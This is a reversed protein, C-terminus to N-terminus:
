TSLVASFTRPSKNVERSFAGSSPALLFHAMVMEWDREGSSVWSKEVIGERILFDHADRVHSQMPPSALWRSHPTAFGVKEKRWLVREPVRGDLAKRVLFKSWGDRIKYSSPLSFMFEVLQHSLFPLRVERSHAM